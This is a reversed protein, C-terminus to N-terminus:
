AATIESTCLRVPTGDNLYLREWRLVSPVISLGNCVHGSTSFSQVVPAFDDWWGQASLNAEATEIVPTAFQWLSVGVIDAFRKGWERLRAPSAALCRHTADDILHVPLSSTKVLNALACDNIIPTALAQLAREAVAKSPVRDGREWRSVSAQDVGLRTALDHQKIRHARRLMRLREAFAPLRTPNPIVM